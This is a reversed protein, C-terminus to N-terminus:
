IYLVVDFPTLPSIRKQKKTNMPARDYLKDNVFRLLENKREGSLGKHNRSYSWHIWCSIKGRTEWLLQDYGLSTKSYFELIANILRLNADNTKKFDGIVIQSDIAQGKFHQSSTSGGDPVYSRTSSTIYWGRYLDPYNTKLFDAFPALIDQIFENMNKVREEKTFVVGNRNYDGMPVYGDGTTMKALIGSNKVAALVPPIIIGSTSVVNTPTSGTVLGAPTEFNGFQIYADDVGGDTENYARIQEEKNALDGQVLANPNEFTELTIPEVGGFKKDRSFRMRIGEATTTMDNPKISHKVKIVQYLGNFLQISNLYFYQMPFIQANGIMEFSANYSRGEMVPLMSCDMTVKKNQNEKDVLRQLNVISEATTKNERTDVNLGKIIKNFPSGVKIEYADTTISNILDENAAPINSDPDNGITAREQPTAAFMVYFFNILQVNTKLHPKFIDLYNNFDGNGPIPIFVFNNKTCIQQIINLVTTNGNPRYLPDLNIISNEVKINRNQNLPYDYIFSNRAASVLGNNSTSIHLDKGENNKKSFRNKVVDFADAPAPQSTSLDTLSDTLPDNYILNEWQHYLVHFQKYIGEKQEEGKGLVESIIQNKEEEIKNMKNLISECMKRICARHNQGSNSGTWFPAFVLGADDELPHIAMSYVINSAAIQTNLDSITTTNQDVVQANADWVCYTDFNNPNTDPDNRDFLAQSPNSMGEYKLVGSSFRKNISSVRVLENGESDNYSDIPVYGIPWVDVGLFSEDDPNLNRVESDTTANNIENARTADSGQFLVFTYTDTGVNLSPVQYIIGNNYVRKSHLSELEMWVTNAADYSGSGTSKPSFVQNIVQRLSLFTIPRGSSDVDMVVRADLLTDPLKQYVNTQNFVSSVESSPTNAQALADPAGPNYLNEFWSLYNNGDSSLLRTWFLCFQKLQSYEDDSLASLIETTINEMDAEALQVVEEVSDRDGGWNTDYDGPRNPDNSRTLFAIIGARIMVNEAINRYFPKYPNGKIGEINNIRKILRNEDTIGGAQNDTVLDKAIGESIATIFENVFALEYDEIGVGKAPIEKGDGGEFELPYQKGNKNSSDRVARNAAYGKLGEQLIRALIYGADEALQGFIEKITIKQIQTKSSDFSKQKIADEIKTINDTLIAIRRKIEADANMGPVTLIGGQITISAVGGPISKPAEGGIQSTLLLYVNAKRLNDASVATYTKLKEITNISQDSPTIVKVNQFGPVSLNGVTGKIEEDFKIVKSIAVAEVIRNAKLLTIQKSLVDFEKTTEKTKIEVQKGIKILDFITQVKSMDEGARKKLGKVALLFLFPLDAMFGWQNPVFECKIDYSGDSQYTTSTQKLNLLWSVQRGLYGKFTFLFKPPPWNFLVSFNLDSSYPQNSGEQFSESIQQNINTNINKGFVANGYLDKFTITIVPQLSTNVEIDVNTIGFGVGQRFFGVNFIKKGMFDYTNGNVIAILRVDLFFGPDKINFDTEEARIVRGVAM